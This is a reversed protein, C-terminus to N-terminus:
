RAVGRGWYAPLDAPPTETPPVAYKQLVYDMLQHFVPGATVGGGIAGATPHRIVVYVTFRPKDAPAFGAFSVALSGDYCKCKAGVEQATGTKGAVRYGPIGAGPATGVGETTVMEMMQSMKEAATPSVVRTRRTTDTGVSTGYSTDQRGEVLSPSLREGGNAVTNVATAMQLANVSVGQGFAINARSLTSWDQWGPLIGGSQGPVGIDAKHGLGFKDLYSWMQKPEFKSAALVTGINSSLAIVGTMTLRLLGHEFYDHVVRDLVPLDHPVRIQTQPTVKGADLLASATLVKEVSGPEYVDSLSRAGLDAKRAKTVSNADFTPYDALALLEGTRSDMVVASGSKAKSTQVTKRVVRQAYWQVDRDITLKVDKGNVPKVETNDGLPIRNGGGLEYTEKGDTGSLTKNLAAELGGGAKGGDSIFGLLNAAVDGAPYTRLPDARTEVGLYGQAKVADAARNALTSPIRRALYVFRTKPQELKTLLAFYDLDLRSSLIQAIAPANASTKTPDAVLMLGAVSQALPTGNRDLIRGRTAPLVATVLGATVLGAAEARATYSRADVGQLQLLRGGFLTLMMAIAIFAVRLRVHTSGRLTRTSRTM